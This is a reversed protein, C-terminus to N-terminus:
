TLLPGLLGGLKGALEILGAGTLATELGSWVQRIIDRRPTPRQLQTQLTEIDAVLELKTAESMSAHSLVVQRADTLASSLDTYNTNVVNGDGVVTVGNINTINVTSSLPTVQYVSAKEMKDIGIDSIKYTVKPASRVGYKTQYTREVAVERVWGKQVLYDLNHGVDQQKIGAPRLKAQIESILLAGGSRGRAARHSEYLLRLVRDRVSDDKWIPAAAVRLRAM